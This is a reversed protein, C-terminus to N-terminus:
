TVAEYTAAFVSAKCGYFEGEIGKIVWDTPSAAMIGELTRIRIQNTTCTETEDWFHAYGDNALIWDIILIAGEATGDWQAAEIEVPKKRYRKQESM